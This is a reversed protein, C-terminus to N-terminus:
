FGWVAACVLFVLVLGAAVFNAHRDALAAAAANFKDVREWPWYPPPLLQAAVMM